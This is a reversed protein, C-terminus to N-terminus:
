AGALAENIMGRSIARSDPQYTGKEVQATLAAIRSSRDTQESSVARSLAGLAGSFEVRDGGSQAAQRTEKSSDASHTEQTRSTQGAATGTLLHNDIKM